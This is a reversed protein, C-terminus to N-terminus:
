PHKSMMIFVAVAAVCIGVVVLTLFLNQQMGFIYHQVEYDLSVLKDEASAVNSFHLKYEGDQSSVFAYNLNGTNTFTEMVNGQPDTIYFDLVNTSQGTVTFRIQVHDDVVLSITRTEEQGAPVTFSEATARAIPVLLLLIATALFLFTLHKKILIMMVEDTASTM